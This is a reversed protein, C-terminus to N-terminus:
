FLHKTFVATQWDPHGNQKFIKQDFTEDALLDQSKQTAMWVSPQNYNDIILEGGPKLYKLAHPICEDRYLGDIVVIDFLDGSVCVDTMYISNTYHLMAEHETHFATNALQFRGTKGLEKLRDLVASLWQTNSDVGYIEKAKHAYWITSAGLGYEWVVKDSLDWTSLVDLFPKVYWPFLIGGLSDDRFQWENPDILEKM